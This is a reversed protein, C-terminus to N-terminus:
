RGSDDSFQGGLALTSAQLELLFPQGLKRRDFEQRWVHGASVRGQAAVFAAAISLYPGSLERLSVADVVTYGGSLADRILVDGPEPSLV